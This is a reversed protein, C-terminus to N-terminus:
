EPYFHCVDDFLTTSMGSYTGLNTLLGKGVALDLGTSMFRSMEDPNTLNKNLHVCVINILEHRQDWKPYLCVTCVVTLCWLIRRRILIEQKSVTRNSKSNVSARAWYYVSSGIPSSWNILHPFLHVTILTHNKYAIMKSLFLSSTAKSQTTDTYTRHRKRM